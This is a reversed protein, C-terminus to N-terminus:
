LVSLEEGYQPLMRYATGPADTSCYKQLASAVDVHCVANVVKLPSLAVRDKWDIARATRSLEAAEAEEVEEEEEEDEMEDEEEEAALEVLEDVNVFEAVDAGVDDEDM